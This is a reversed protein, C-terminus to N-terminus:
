PWSRSSSAASTRPYGYGSSRRQVGPAGYRLVGAAGGGRRRVRARARRRRARRHGRRLAPRDADRRAARAAADLVEAASEESGAGLRQTGGVRGRVRRAAHAVPTGHLEGITLMEDRLSPVLLLDVERSSAHWRSRSGAGSGIPRSSTWRRSSGRSVSCTPGHTRCRRRRAHRMGGSLTLEEFAAAAEAFLMPM